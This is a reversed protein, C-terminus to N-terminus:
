VMEERVITPRHLRLSGKLSTYKYIGVAYIINKLINNTNHFSWFIMAEQPTAHEFVYTSTVFLYLSFGFYVFVASNIWFPAYLTVQQVHSDTFLSAYYLMSFGLLLIGGVTRTISQYEQISQYRPTVVFFCLLFLAIGSYVFLKRKPLFYVYLAALLAFQLVFFINLIVDAPKGLMALVYSATDSAASLLLLAGLITLFYSQLKFYKQIWFAIPLLISFISAYLIALTM